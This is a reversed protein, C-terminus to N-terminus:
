RILYLFAALPLAATLADIRDLIGGHGPLCSGSDKAGAIRKLQSEVLDGVIGFGAILVWLLIAAWPLGPILRVMDPLSDPHFVWWVCAYGSVAALACWVGEWSKGPSIGAALKRKGFRRGGFFAVTDSLWVIAMVALLANPNIERLSILATCTATLVVVGAILLRCRGRMATRSYLWFPAVFIWFAGGLTVTMLYIHTTGILVIASSLLAAVAAFYYANRNVLGALRGWENAAAATVVICASAWMLASAFYVLILFAVVLIAATVVRDRLM